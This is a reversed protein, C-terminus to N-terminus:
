PATGHFGDLNKAQIVAYKLPSKRSAHWYVCRQTEPVTCAALHELIFNNRPSGLFERIPTADEARAERVKKQRSHVAQIQM